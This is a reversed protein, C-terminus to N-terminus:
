QTIRCWDPYSSPDWEKVRTPELESDTGPAKRYVLFPKRNYNQLYRDIFEDEELEILLRLQQHPLELYLYRALNKIEWLALSALEPKSHQYRTMQYILADLHAPLSPIFIPFNNLSDNGGPLGKPFITHQKASEPLHPAKTDPHLRPGFWWGDERDIAPHWTEEILISRWLYLDPVEVVPCTDVSIRYINESWLNLYQYESEHQIETRRLVLDAACEVSPVLNEPTQPDPM